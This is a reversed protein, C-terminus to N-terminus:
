RARDIQSYRIVRDGAKQVAEKYKALAADKNGELEYVVGMDNIVFPDNPDMQYAKKTLQIFKQTDGNRYAKIGETLQEQTPSTACGFLLSESDFCFSFPCLDNEENQDGGKKLECSFDNALSVFCVFM